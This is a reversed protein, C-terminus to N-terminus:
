GENMEELTTRTWGRIQRRLMAVPREGKVEGITYIRRLESQDGVKVVLPPFKGEDTGALREANLCAVFSDVPSRKPKPKPKPQQSRRPQSDQGVAFGKLFAGMFVSPDMGAKRAALYVSSRVESDLTFEVTIQEAGQAKLEALKQPNIEEAKVIPHKM